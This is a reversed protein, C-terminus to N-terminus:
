SKMMQIQGPIHIELRCEEAGIVIRECVQEVLERLDFIDGKAVLEGVSQIYKALQEPKLDIRSNRLESQLQGAQSQLQNVLSEQERLALEVMRSPIEMSAFNRVLRIAMREADALEKQTGDLRLELDALGENLCANTWELLEQLHDQTLIKELLATMVAEELDDAPILSANPCLDHRENYAHCAYYRYRGVSKGEMRGGCYVCIAVNALFFGSHKRRPHHAGALKREKKPIVYKQVAAFLVDSILAPYVNPFRQGHFEYEGIYIRNGFLYNWSSSKGPYLGTAASVDVNSAGASKMEFARQILPAKDPDFIPKRGMRANGDRKVGIPMEESKYGLCILGNPVCGTEAIYTLGRVTSARLDILFQENKWDILAEFIPALEGSPINDTMSLVQWGHMRMEARYFQSEMSNRGFRAYAWVILMEAQRQKQRALHVMQEFAERNDTTSGSKWRDAFAREIPWGKELCLQRVASEQSELTQNDGPSNRLYVWVKTGPPMERPDIEEQRQNKM